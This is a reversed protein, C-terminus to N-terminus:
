LLEKNLAKLRKSFNERSKALGEDYKKVSELTKENELSNEEKKKFKDKLFKFLGM